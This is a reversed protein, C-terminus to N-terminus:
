FKRQGSHRDGTKLRRRGDCGGVVYIYGGPAAMRQGCRLNALHLWGLRFGQRQVTRAQPLRSFPSGIRSTSRAVLMDVPWSEMCREGCEQLGGDFLLKPETGCISAKGTRRIDAPTDDQPGAAGGQCRPPGSEARPKLLTVPGSAVLEAMLVAPPGVFQLATSPRPPLERAPGCARDLPRVM